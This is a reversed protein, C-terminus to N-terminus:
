SEVTLQKNIVEEATSSSIAMRIFSVLGIAFQRALLFVIPGDM